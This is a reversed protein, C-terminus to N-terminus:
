EAAASRTAGSNMLHAKLFRGLVSVAEDVYKPVDYLKM